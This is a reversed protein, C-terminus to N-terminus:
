ILKAPISTRGFRSILMGWLFFTVIGPYPQRLGVKFFNDVLLLYFVTMCLGLFASSALVERRAEILKLATYIVLGLIPLFAILGFNYAFDLYYNHASPYGARDPPSAHGLLFAKPSEVIHEGYYRWYDLRESVNIPTQPMASAVTTEASPVYSVTSTGFGYAALVIAISAGGGLVVSVNWKRKRTIYALMTTSFLIFGLLWVTTVSIQNILSIAYNILWVKPRAIFFYGCFSSIALIFQLLGLRDNSKKYTYLSFILTGAVLEVASITSEGAAAYMGMFPTLILLVRRWKPQEWISFLVFLYCTIIIAPVYQIHQYISFFYLHHALTYKGSSWAVILQLPVLLVLVVIFAREIIKSPWETTEYAQGLVLAFMPMVYQLMLILKATEHTDQSVSSLIASMIMFVFTMFIISMSLSARRLGGLLLIGGYCAFISLPLPLRHIDGASGFLVEKDNFIAGNLQFFIPMLLAIGVAWWINKHDIWFRNRNALSMEVSEYFLYALIANFLYLTILANPSIIIYALPIFAIMVVNLLVDPGFLNQNKHNHLLHVRTRQALIMVVGGVLSLGVASWFMKSKGAWALLMYAHQSVIFILTGSMLVVGFAMRVWRPLKGKEASQQVRMLSPGLVNAFASGFFSGIAFAVFLDGAIEKGTILTILLRFVYVTIGAVATSGFHPLLGTWELRTRFDVQYRNIRGASLILPTVAWLYLISVVQWGGIVSVLVLVLLIVELKFFNKIYSKDGHKEADSLFVENIWEVCRRIVLATALTLEVGSLVVSLYLSIILLPCILFLRTILISKASAVSSDSLILSRANASFSFLLAVTAGQVIGIDAALEPHGSLGVVILVVTMAFTNIGFAVPFIYNM